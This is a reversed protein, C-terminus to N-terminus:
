PAFCPAGEQDCRGWAIGSFTAATRFVETLTGADNRTVVLQMDTADTGGYALDPDGDADFDGFAAACGYQPFTGAPVFEMGDRLFLALEDADCGLADDDGDGDVDAWWWRHTSIPATWGPEVVFGTSDDRLVHWRRPGAFPGLTIVLEEGACGDLEVWDVDYIDEDTATFRLALPFQGGTNRYVRADTSRIAVDADGDTDPDAFAVSQTAQEAMLMEWCWDYAAGDPCMVNDFNTGGVWLDDQTDGNADFWGLAYTTTPFDHVVELQGTTLDHIQVEWSGGDLWGTALEDFGDGDPDGWTVTGTHSGLGTQSDVLAWGTGPDAYVALPSSPGHVAIARRRPPGAPATPPPCPDADPPAGDPVPAADALPADVDPQADPQAPGSGCGVAIAVSAVIALDIVQRM